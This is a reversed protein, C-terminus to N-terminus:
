ALSSESLPVIKQEYFGEGEVFLWSRMEGARGKQVSVILYPFGGFAHQADCQSPRPDHDPHSHYAGIVDMGRQRAFRDARIFDYPDIEYRHDSEGEYLNRCPFAWAVRYEGGSARGILLGCCEAPYAKEGERRVTEIAEQPLFLV